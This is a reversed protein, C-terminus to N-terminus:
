PTAKSDLGVEGILRRIAGLAEGLNLPGSACELKDGVLWIRIWDHESRELTVPEIRTCDLGTGQLDITVRWGPNDITRIAVGSTHEWDGDCQSLYWSQLWRIDDGLPQTM